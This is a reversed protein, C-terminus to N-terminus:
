FILKLLYGIDKKFSWNNVYDRNIKVKDRWVVTDNYEQPNSQLLLIKEEDKYKISAPGTIGPRVTLIVADKGLLKDAYGAVDPRPGVMSMDGNLVNFLQPLEDLKSKRLFKGVRGPEKQLAEISHNKGKLTRIKYIDFPKRNKGIRKQVFIGLQRTEITALIVFVFIPFVLILLLVLSVAVDFIRKVAQQGPSLM